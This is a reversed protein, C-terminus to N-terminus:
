KEPSAFIKKLVGEGDQIREMLFLPIEKDKAIDSFFGDDNGTEVVVLCDARNASLTNFEDSLAGRRAKGGLHMVIVAMNTKEARDILGNVRTIEESKDIKAAGLGKTSGGSVVLLTRHGALGEPQVLKDFTFEVGAKQVLIKGMLGDASQGATTIMVPAEASYEQSWGPVGALVLSFILVPFGNKM